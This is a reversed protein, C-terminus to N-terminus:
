FWRRQNLVDYVKQAEESYFFGKKSISFALNLAEERKGDYLLCGLLLWDGVEKNEGKQLEKALVYAQEIRGQHLCAIGALMKSKETLFSVKGTASLQQYYNVLSDNKEESYWQAIRHNVRAAEPTSFGEARASEWVPPTYVTWLVEQTDFRYMKGYFVLSAVLVCLCAATWYLRINSFLRHRESKVGHLIDSEAKKREAEVVLQRLFVQEKLTEEREMRAIFADEEEPTMEYNLFRDIEDQIRNDSYRDM